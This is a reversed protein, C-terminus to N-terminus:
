TSRGFVLGFPRLLPSLRRRDCATRLSRPPDCATRFERQAQGVKDVFRATTARCILIWGNEDRCADIDVRGMRTRRSFTRSQPLSWLHATKGSTPSRSSRSSRHDRISPGRRRPITWRAPEVARSGPARPYQPLLDYQNAQELAEDDECFFEVRDQHSRRAGGIREIIM